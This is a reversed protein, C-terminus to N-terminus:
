LHGPQNRRFFLPNQFPMEAPRPSAEQPKPPPRLYPCFLTLSRYAPLNRSLTFFMRAMLSNLSRSCTLQTLNRGGRDRSAHLFLHGCAQPIVILPTTQPSPESLCLIRITPLDCVIQYTIGTAERRCPEGTAFGISAGRM